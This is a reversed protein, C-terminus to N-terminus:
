SDNKWRAAAAAIAIERRREPTLAGARAKGGKLGGIRGLKAEPSLDITSEKVGSLESVAMDVISKALQNPDRPRKSTKSM